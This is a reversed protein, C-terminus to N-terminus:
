SIPVVDVIGSKLVLKLPPSAHQLDIRAYGGDAISVGLRTYAGSSDLVGEVSVKGPGANVIVLIVTSGNRISYASVFPGPSPAGPPSGVGRVSDVIVVGVPVVIALLMIAAVLNSLGRM